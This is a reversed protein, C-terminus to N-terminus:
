IIFIVVDVSSLQNLATFQPMKWRQRGVELTAAAMSRMRSLDADLPFEPPAETSRELAHSANFFALAALLADRGSQTAHLDGVVWSIAM